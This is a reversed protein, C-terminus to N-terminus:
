TQTSLDAIFTEVTKNWHLYVAELGRHLIDFEEQLVTLKEDKDKYEGYPGPLKSEVFERFVIKERAVYADSAKSRREKLIKEIRELEFITYSM